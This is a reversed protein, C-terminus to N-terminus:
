LQIGAFAELLNRQPAAGCFTEEFKQGFNHLARGSLATAVNKEKLGNKFGDFVKKKADPCEKFLQSLAPGIKHKKLVDQCGKFLADIRELDKLATETEFTLKSLHFAIKNAMHLGQDRMADQRRLDILANKFYSNDMLLLTHRVADLELVLSEYDHKFRNEKGQFRLKTIWLQNELLAVREWPLLSLGRWDLLFEAAHAQPMELNHALKPCKLFPLKDQGPYFKFCSDKGLKHMVRNLFDIDEAFRLGAFFDLDNTMRADIFFCKYFFAFENKFDKKSECKVGAKELGAVACTVHNSAACQLQWLATRVCVRKADKPSTEQFKVNDDLMFFKPIKVNFDALDATTVKARAGIGTGDEERLSERTIRKIIARPYAHGRGSVPLVALALNKWKKRYPLVDQREVFVVHDLGTTGDSPDDLENLENLMACHDPKVNTRSKSLVFVPALADLKDGKLQSVLSQLRAAPCHFDVVEITGPPAWPLDSLEVRFSVDELEGYDLLPSRELPKTLARKTEAYRQQVEVVKDPSSLLKAM